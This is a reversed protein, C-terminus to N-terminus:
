LAHADQYMEHRNTIKTCPLLGEFSIDRWAIVEGTVCRVFDGFAQTGCREVLLTHPLPARRSPPTREALLRKALRCGGKHVRLLYESNATAGCYCGHLVMRRRRHLHYNRLACPKKWRKDCDECEGRSTASTREDEREKRTIVDLLMSVFIGAMQCGFFIHHKLRLASIFFYHVLILLPNVNNIIADMCVFLLRIKILGCLM